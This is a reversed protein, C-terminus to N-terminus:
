FLLTGSVRVFRELYSRNDDFSNFPMYGAQLGLNLFRRIGFDINGQVGTRREKGLAMNQMTSNMYIMRFRIDPRKIRYWVQASLFDQPQTIENYILNTQVGQLTIGTTNQYSASLSLSNTAQQMNVLVESLVNMDNRAVSLQFSLADLRLTYNLSGYWNTNQVNYNDQLNSFTNGLFYRYGLSVTPLTNNLRLTAGGRISSNERTQPRQGGLNDIMYDYFVHLSFRNKFLRIRDGINVMQRNNLMFPNALAYYSAGIRKGEILLDNHKTIPISTALGFACQPAEKFTLPVTSANLRILFNFADEGGQTNNLSTFAMAANIRVFGRNQKIPIYKEWHISVNDQPNIGAIRAEGVIDRVRVLGFKGYGYKSHIVHFQIMYYDREYVPMAGQFIANASDPALPFTNAVTNAETNKGYMFRLKVKKTNPVYTDLYIGRVRIGSFTFRDQNIFHDGYTLSFGNKKYGISFTNRYSFRGQANTTYFGKIPIEGKGVRLSLNIGVERVSAPEQRLAAGSGSIDADSTAFSISGSLFPKKKSVKKRMPSPATAALEGSKVTFFTEVLLTPEKGQKGRALLEITHRGGALPESYIASLLNKRLMTRETLDQKGDLVLMFEDAKFSNNEPLQIIILLKGSTVPQNVEPSIVAYNEQAIATAHYGLFLGILFRALNIKISNMM